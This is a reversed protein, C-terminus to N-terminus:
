LYTLITLMITIYEQFLIKIKPESKIKLKIKIKAKEKRAKPQPKKCFKEDSTNKTSLDSNEVLESGEELCALCLIIKYPPTTNFYTILLEDIFLEAAWESLFISQQKNDMSTAISIKLPKYKNILLEWNPLDRALINILEEMFTYIDNM